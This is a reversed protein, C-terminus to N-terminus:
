PQLADQSTECAGRGGAFLIPVTKLLIWLDLRLSAKRLYYLDFEPQSHIPRQLDGAVQWMGTIGPRLELRRSFSRDYGEVVFPMEPRPGVLSMDGRIVNWLQPLEDIGARRLFACFSCMAKVEEAQPKLHQSPFRPDLTRLKFLQFRKGNRGIREQVFLPTSRWRMWIFLALFPFVALFLALVPVSICHDLVRKSKGNAYSRFEKLTSTSPSEM